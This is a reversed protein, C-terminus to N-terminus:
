CGGRGCCVVCFVLWLCVVCMVCCGFVGAFVYDRVCLCVFVFM